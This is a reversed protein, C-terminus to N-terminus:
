FEINLRAWVDDSLDAAQRRVAAPMLVTAAHKDVELTAIRQAKPILSFSGELNLPAILITGCRTNRGLFASCMAVHVPLGLGAGNKDADMARIQLSFEHARPDRDGVLENARTYFNQEGIRV